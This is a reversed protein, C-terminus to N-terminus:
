SMTQRSIMFLQAREEVTVQSNFSTDTYFFVKGEQQMSKELLDTVQTLLEDETIATTTKVGVAACLTVPRSLCNPEIIHKKIEDILLRAKVLGSSPTILCFGTTMLQKKCGPFNSNEVRGQDISYCFLQNQLGKERGIVGALEDNIIDRNTEANKDFVPSMLIVSCPMQASRSEDLQQRLSKRVQDFEVLSLQASNATFKSTQAPSDPGVRMQEAVELQTFKITTLVKLEHVLSLVSSLSDYIFKGVIDGQEYITLSHKLNSDNSPSSAKPALHVRDIKEPIMFINL